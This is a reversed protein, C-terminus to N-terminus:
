IWSLPDRSAWPSQLSFICTVLDLVVTHNFIQYPVLKLCLWWYISYSILVKGPNARSPSFNLHLSLTMFSDHMSQTLVKCARIFSTFSHFSFFQPRCLHLLYYDHIILFIMSSIWRRSVHFSDDTNRNHPRSSDGPRQKKNKKKVISIRWTPIILSSTREKRTIIAVHLGLLYKIKEWLSAEDHRFLCNSTAYHCCLRLIFALHKRGVVMRSRVENIQNELPLTGSLRNIAIWENPVYKNSCFIPFHTWSFARPTKLLNRYSKKYKRM